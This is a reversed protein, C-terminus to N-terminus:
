WIWTKWIARVAKTESGSEYLRYISKDYSVNVVYGAYYQCLWGVLALGINVYREKGSLSDRVVRLQAGFWFWGAWIDEVQSRTYVRYSSQFISDWEWERIDKTDVMVWIFIRNQGAQDLSFKTEM